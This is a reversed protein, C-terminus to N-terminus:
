QTPQGSGHGPADLLTRALSLAYAAPGDAGLHAANLYAGDILVALQNALQTGEDTPGPHIQHALHKLRALLQQRYRRAAQGAPHEPDDYEAAANGFPCGRFHPRRIDQEIADLIAHLAARAGQAPDSTRDTAHEIDDDIYGLIQDALRELYSGVLEDKTAFVRYVSMKSLGSEDILRDMGVAHIGHRTFLRTATDLVIRRRDEAPLRAARTAAAPGQRSPSM